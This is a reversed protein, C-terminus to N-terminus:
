TRQIELIDMLVHIYHKLPQYGDQGASNKSNNVIMSNVIFEQFILKLLNM